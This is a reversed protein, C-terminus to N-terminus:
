FIYRVYKQESYSVRDGPAGGVGPLGVSLIDHIM